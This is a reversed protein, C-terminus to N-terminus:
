PEFFDHNFEPNFYNLIKLIIGIDSNYNIKKFYNDYEEM